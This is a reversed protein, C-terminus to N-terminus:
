FNSKRNFTTKGDMLTGYIFSSKMKTKAFLKQHVFSLVKMDPRIIKLIKEREEEKGEGDVYQSYWFYALSYRM